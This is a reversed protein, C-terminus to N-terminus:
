HSTRRKRLVERKEQTKTTVTGQKRVITVPKRFITSRQKQVTAARQNTYIGRRRLVAAGRAVTVTEVRRTMPPRLVGRRGIVPEPVNVGTVTSTSTSTSASPVTSVEPYTVVDPESEVPVIVTRSPAPAAVIVDGDDEADYRGYGRRRPM